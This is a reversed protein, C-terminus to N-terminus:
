KSPTGRHCARNHPRDRELHSGRINSGARGFCCNSWSNGQSVQFSWSPTGMHYPRTWVYQLGPSTYVAVATSYRVRRRLTFVGLSSLSLRSPNAPQGIVPRRM